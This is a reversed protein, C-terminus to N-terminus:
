KKKTVCLSEKLSPRYPQFKQTCTRNNLIIKGLDDNNTHTSTGDTDTDCPLHLFITAFQTRIKM